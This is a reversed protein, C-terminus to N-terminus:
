HLESTYTLMRVSLCSFEVFMSMAIIQVGVAHLVIAKTM